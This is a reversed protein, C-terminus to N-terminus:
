IQWDIFGKIREIGLEKASKENEMGLYERAGKYNMGKHKMIFDIADGSEGCGWCKYKYKNTDPFYKISMSGTKENHFPCCIYGERNFKNGTENEILQKLDIDHLENM